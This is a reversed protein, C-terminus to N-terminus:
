AIKVKSRKKVHYLGVDNFVISFEIGSSFLLRHEFVNNDLVEIEYYGIDGYGDSVPLSEGKGDLTRFRSVGTYQLEVVRSPKDGGLTVVRLSLKKENLNVLLNILNADSFYIKEEILRIAKPLRERVSRYYIEYTDRPENIIQDSCDFDQIKQWWSLTFYKM